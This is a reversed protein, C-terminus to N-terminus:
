VKGREVAVAFLQRLQQRFARVGVVARGSEAVERGQIQGDQMRFQRALGADVQRDDIRQQIRCERRETGSVDVSTRCAAERRQM